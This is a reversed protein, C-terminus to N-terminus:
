ANSPKMDKETALDGYYGQQKNDFAQWVLHGETAGVETEETGQLSMM